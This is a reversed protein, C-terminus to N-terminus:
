ILQGPTEGGVEPPTRERSATVPRRILDVLLPAIQRLSVCYDVEVHRLASEPMSPYVADSPDQVIATGGSQKITALGATGDDLNGTLIVGIAAPGFARAASRFLPDIAPRFRNEKPGKTVRVHAPEVLLHWDPPAVYIKGAQLLELRRPSVVPLRSVRSLLECILGPSDPSTHIVICIPAAFDGPLASTLERLADVGGSSTGVVVIRNLYGGEALVM